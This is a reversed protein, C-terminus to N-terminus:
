HLAELRSKSKKAKGVTKAQAERAKAILNNAANALHRVINNFQDLPVVLMVRPELKNDDNLSGFTIRIVGSALRVSMLADAFVVPLQQAM